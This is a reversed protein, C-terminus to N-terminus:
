PCIEFKRFGWDPHDAPNPLGAVKFITEPPGNFLKCPNNCGTEMKIRRAVPWESMNIYCERVYRIVNKHESTLIGVDLKTAINKAMEWDWLDFDRLYGQSDLCELTDTSTKEDDLRTTM